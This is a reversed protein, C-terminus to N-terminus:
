PNRIQDGISLVRGAELVLGYSVKEFVRFIMLLGARQAPLQVLQKQEQDRVIAGKRYIATVNSVALGERTGRNLVVVNYQGVQSVGNLVAIIEGEVATAPPTPVFTPTLYHSDEKVLVRDGIRIEEHINKIVLTSLEGDQSLFSATGISKAEIGLVEKTHPDVYLQGKRYIGFLKGEIVSDPMLGRVYISDGAGMILREDGSVVYPAQELAGVALINSETIFANIANLPITPIASPLPIERATPSLKVTTQGREVILQPRGEVYILKISDGPYILHPNKIHPNEQWISTWLWPQELFRGAIDWLTDGLQVTYQTPHDSKLLNEQAQTLNIVGLSITLSLVYIFKIYCSTLKM